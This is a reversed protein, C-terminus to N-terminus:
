NRANRSHWEGSQLAPLGVFDERTTTGKAQHSSAHIGKRVARLAKNCNQTCREEPMKSFLASAEARSKRAPHFYIRKQMNPLNKLTHKSTLKGAEVYGEEYTWVKHNATCEFTGREHVIRVMPASQPNNFWGTVPMWKVEKTSLDVSKVSVPLRKDVIEGIPLLGRDTLVRLEYPLCHFEDVVMMDIGMQDWTITQASDKSMDSKSVLKAEFRKIAKEIEKKARRDVDRDAKIKNLFDRLEEIEAEVFGNLTEPKVPLMKFSSQPIIVADWRNMAIRSMFESRKNKKLDNKGACLVKAHPYALLFADRWDGTLHNPVVVVAKHAAGLRIAEMVSVIATLTKGLGVEDGILTAHRQLGFWVADKQLSRLTLQKSLGPMTLHSGDDHPRVFVNFRSNYIQALREARETDQWLWTDFRTKLEELKAQAAVTEQQNLIRKEHGDEDITDYM